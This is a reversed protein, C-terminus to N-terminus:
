VALFPWTWRQTSRALALSALSNSTNSLALTLRFVHHKKLNTLWPFIHFILPCIYTFIMPIYRLSYIYPFDVPFRSYPFAHPKVHHFVRSFPHKYDHSGLPQVINKWRVSPLGSFMPINMLFSQSKVVFLASLFHGFIAFVPQTPRLGKCSRNSAEVEALPRLLVGQPHLSFGDFLFQNPIDHSRRLSIVFMWLSYGNPLDLHSTFGVPSLHSELIHKKGVPFTCAFFISNM